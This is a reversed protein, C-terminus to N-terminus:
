KHILTASRPHNRPPKVPCELSVTKNVTTKVKEQDQEVKSAGFSELLSNPSIEPVEM